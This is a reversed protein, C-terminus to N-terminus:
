ARGFITTLDALKSRIDSTLANAPFRWRWNNTRTGPTNMRSESSYNIIDQLPFIVMDAASLMLLRIVKWNLHESHEPKGLYRFLNQKEEETSDQELWGRFTNTDHTGTCAMCNKEYNHPLYPHNPNHNEFAFLFVKTGPIQFRYMTEKVDATITGLDEAIVPFTFFHKFITNFFDDVPVRRWRGESANQHQAPTEWYAVLGRFHDIRLVDFLQFSRRFRKLWWSYNNKQMQDWNYVPNHWLQGQPCFRDPPAGAFFAPRSTSDLKFIQPNAWVDVSNYSVFMPLDGIIQVGKQHCYDHLEVWQQMLLYQYFKEQTIKTHHEKCFQEIASADRNRFPQPWQNWPQHNFHASLVVFLAHNDLWSSNQLCFHKFDSHFGKKQASNFASQLIMMKFDYVRSYCINTQNLNVYDTVESQTLLGQKVLTQPSILLPNLAFSSISSYPSFDSKPDTPNLPLIQWYSQHTEALFDVFNFAEEGLDGIGFPSPLSIIHLLVGSGRKHM